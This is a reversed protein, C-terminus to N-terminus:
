PQVTWLLRAIGGGVAVLVIAMMIAVPIMWRMMRDFQTERRRRLEDMERMSRGWRPDLNDRKM